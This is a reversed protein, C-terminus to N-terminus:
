ELIEAKVFHSSTTNVILDKSHPNSLKILAGEIKKVSWVSDEPTLNGPVAVIMTFRYKKGVEFM